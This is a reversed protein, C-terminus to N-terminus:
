SPGDQTKLERVQGRQAEQWENIISENENERAQQQNGHINEQREAGM